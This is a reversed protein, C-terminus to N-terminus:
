HKSNITEFTVYAALTFPNNGAHAIDELNIRYSQGSDDFQLPSGFKVWAKTLLPSACPASNDTKCVQVQIGLNKDLYQLLIRFEGFQLFYGEKFWSISSKTSSVESQTQKEKIDTSVKDIQKVSNEISESSKVANQIEPVSKVISDIHNNVTSIEKQVNTKETASALKNKQKLEQLQRDYKDLKSLAEKIVVTSTDTNAIVQNQQQINSNGTCIVRFNLQSKEISKDHSSNEFDSLACALENQKAKDKETFYDKKLEIFEKKIDQNATNRQKFLEILYSSGLSIVATLVAIAFFRFNETKFKKREFAYKDESQYIELAVKIKDLEEKNKKLLDDYNFRAM